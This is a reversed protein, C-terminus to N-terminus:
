EPECVERQGELYQGQRLTRHELWSVCVAAVQILEKEIDEDSDRLVAETVEGFEEALITLWREDSRDVFDTGWKYDQRISERRIAQMITQRERVTM